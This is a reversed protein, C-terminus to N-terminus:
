QFLHKSLIINKQKRTIQHNYWSPSEGLKLEIQETSVQTFAKELAGKKASFFVLIKVLLYPSDIINSSLWWFM